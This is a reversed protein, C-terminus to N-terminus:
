DVETTALGTEPAGGAKLSKSSAAGGSQQRMQTIENQLEEISTSYFEIEYDKDALETSLEVVKAELQIM